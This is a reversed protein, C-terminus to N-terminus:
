KQRLQMVTQKEVWVRRGDALEIRTWEGSSELWRAQTGRAVRLVVPEDLAPRARGPTDATIEVMEVQEGSRAHMQQLQNPSQIFRTIGIALVLVAVAALAARPWMTPTLSDRLWQWWASLDGKTGRKWLPLSVPSSALARDPVADTANAAAALEPQMQRQLIMGHQAVRVCRACAHLHQEVEAARRADLTAAGYAVLTEADPCDPTAAAPVAGARESWDLLSQRCRGCDALHGEVRDAADHALTGDFWEVLTPMAPCDHHADTNNM